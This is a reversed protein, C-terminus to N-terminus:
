GFIIPEVQPFYTSVDVVPRNEVTWQPAVWPRQSSVCYGVVAHYYAPSEAAAAHRQIQAARALVDEEEFGLSLQEPTRGEVIPRANVVAVVIRTAQERGQARSDIELADDRLM